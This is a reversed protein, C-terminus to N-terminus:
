ATVNRALPLTFRFAAGGGPRNEAWIKGGYTEVITRALSLGLGTGQRKTTYFTEFVKNLKDAPIGTGSDAVMVEVEAEGSLATEISIRGTGAACNQMADMGNVALNLIVQQLHVQDGRVPLSDEAPRAILKVGRSMAEADLVSVTDRVIDNVDFEQLEAVDQKRLLGRFHSIIEAARQDDRRINALIQVVREINPPEAKLYLEAAEAYSQIAGLPQNLEHAVSASLAGAVATRNLHIVQLLRERLADQAAQRRRREIYMAGVAVAQALLVAVIAIIYWRYQEWVGAERFRIETGAALNKEDLGWRRLERWDVRDANGKTPQPPITSLSAGALISLALDAVENGILEFSDMHGGVVGRDFQSEYPSYVPAASAATIDRSVETSVFFKGAGAALFSLLIVITNSPLSKLRDIM